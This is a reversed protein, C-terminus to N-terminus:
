LSESPIITNPFSRSNRRIPNLRCSNRTRVMEPHIGGSSDIGDEFALDGHDVVGLGARVKIAVILATGIMEPQTPQRLEELDAAVLEM